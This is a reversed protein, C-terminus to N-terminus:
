TIVWRVEEGGAHTSITKLVDCCGGNASAKEAYWGAALLTAAASNDAALMVGSSFQAGPSWVVFRKALPGADAEGVSQLFSEGGGTANRMAVCATPNLVNFLDIFGAGVTASASTVRIWVHGTTPTGSLGSGYDAAVFGSRSAGTTTAGADGDTLGKAITIGDQNVNSGAGFTMGNFQFSGSPSVSKYTYTSGNIEIKDGDVWESGYAFLMEGKGGTSGCRGRKGALPYDVTINSDVGIGMDTRTAALVGDAALNQGALAGNTVINDDCFPWSTRQTLRIRAGNSGAAIERNGVIRPTVSGDDSIAVSMGNFVNAIIQPGLCATLEIGTTGYGSIQNEAFVCTGGRKAINNAKPKIRYTGATKSGAVGSANTFTLSSTGSVSLVTASTNNGADAFFVTEISSGIDSQHFSGFTDTLQVISGAVVLVVPTSVSATRWKALQGIREGHIASAAIRAPLCSRSDVTFLNRACTVNELPQSVGRVYRGAFMGYYGGLSGGDILAAVNDHTARVQNGVFEVSSAGLVGIGWQDNWGLRGLGCNTVTNNTFFLSEHTQSDDAGLVAFSGCELATCNTVKVDRIPKSSGSVKIATTRVGFFRCGDITIGERGAFYYIGHTSGHTAGATVTYAGTAPTGPGVLTFLTTTNETIDWMRGASDSLYRGAYAHAHMTLTSDTLSASGVSTATSAIAPAVTADGKRSDYGDVTVSGSFSENVASPNCFRVQTSSVYQSIAFPGRNGANTADVFRLVKRVDGPAFLAAASTFTVVGSSNVISGSGNGQGVKEGCAVYWTATGEPALETVGSGNVYTMSGPIAGARPTIATIKALVNNASSTSGAVKVYKGLLFTDVEGWAAMTVNSGSVTFSIPIGCRDHTLPRRFTCHRITAHSGTCMAGRAGDSTCGDILTGRDGDAVRWALLTGTENAASANRYTLQTVSVISLVRYVGANTDTGSLTLEAGIMGAHFPTNADGNNTLTAIGGSVAITNGATGLMDEFADQVFLAYGGRQTCNIVQLGSCRTAYIGCGVNAYTIEGTDGGVFNLNQMTVGRCNRMLFASRAAQPSIAIADAPVTIDDSAFYLAAFSSGMIRINNATVVVRKSIRYNGPPVWLDIKATAAANVAAQFAATDDTGVNTTPDWNGVANFAKVTLPQRGAVTRLDALAGWTFAVDDASWQETPSTVETRDSKANPIPINDDSFNTM